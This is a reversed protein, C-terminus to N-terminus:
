PTRRPRPAHATVGGQSTTGATKTQPASSVASKRGPGHAPGRTRRPRRGRPSAAACSRTRPTYLAKSVQPYYPTQVPRAVLRLDAARLVTPDGAARAERGDLVSAMAPVVGAERALLRQVEDGACFRAFAMAAGLERFQPQRFQELRRRLLRRLPRHGRLGSASRSGGERRRPVDHPARTSGPTRGTACSCDAGTSSPTRRTRSRTHPWPAPTVGSATFEAM